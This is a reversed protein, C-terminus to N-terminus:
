PKPYEEEPHALITEMIDPDLYLGVQSMVKRREATELTFLYVMALAASTTSALLPFTAVTWVGRQYFSALCFFWFCIAPLVAMSGTLFFWIGDQVRFHMWKLYKRSKWREQGRRSIRSVRGRVLQPWLSSILAMGFLNVLTNQIDPPEIYSGELLQCAAGAHLEVGYVIGGGPADFMDKLIPTTAGIFVIRGDFLKKLQADSYESRNLVSSYSYKQISNTFRYKLLFEQYFPAEKGYYSVHRVPVPFGGNKLSFWTSNRLAEEYSSKEDGLSLDQFIACALTAFGGIKVGNIGASFPYRRSGGDIDVPMNNISIDPTTEELGPNGNEDEGFPSTLFFVQKINFSSEAVSEKDVKSEILSPIIVTQAEEAAAILAKDGASLQGRSGPFQKSAFDIDFAIVKAGAKKLRKVLSAHRDRPWPWLGVENLSPQDIGIIAIKDRLTPQNSEDLSFYSDYVRYELGELISSLWLEQTSSRDPKDRTEFQFVYPVFLLAVLLGMLLVVGLGNTGRLQISPFWRRLWSVNEKM